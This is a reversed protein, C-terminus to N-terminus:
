VELPDFLIGRQTEALSEEFSSQLQVWAIHVSVVPIRMIQHRHAPHFFRQGFGLTTDEEIRQFHTNLHVQSPMVVVCAIIVLRDSRDFLSQFTSRIASTGKRVGYESRTIFLLSHVIFRNQVKAISDPLGSAKGNVDRLDSVGM